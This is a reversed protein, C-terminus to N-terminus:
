TIGSLLLLRHHLMECCNLLLLVLFTHMAADTHIVTMHLIVKYVVHFLHQAVSYEKDCSLFTSNRPTKVQLAVDNSKERVDMYVQSLSRSLGHIVDFDHKRDYKSCLELQRKSPINYVM